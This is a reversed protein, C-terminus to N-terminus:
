LWLSLKKMRNIQHNLDPIWREDGLKSSNLIFVLRLLSHEFCLHAFHTQEEQSYLQNESPLIKEWFLAKDLGVHAQALTDWDILYHQSQNVIFNELHIDRHQNTTPTARLYEWVKHTPPTFEGLNNEELFQELHNVNSYDFNQKTLGQEIHGQFSIPLTSELIEQSKEITELIASMDLIQKESPLYHMLSVWYQGWQHIYHRTHNLLTPPHIHHEILQKLLTTNLIEQSNQVIPNHFKLLLRQSQYEMQYVNGVQVLSGHPPTIGYSHNLLDLVEESSPLAPYYLTTKNWNNSM